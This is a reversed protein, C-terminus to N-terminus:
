ANTREPAAGEELVGFNSLRWQMAIPSVDFRDAMRGIVEAGEGGIAVWAERVSAEPMMLEAAFVNAERELKRDASRSADGARCVIVPAGKGELRQCVRHVVEHAITFRRREPSEDANV